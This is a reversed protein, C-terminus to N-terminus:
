DDEFVEEYGEGSQLGYFAKLQQLPGTGRGGEYSDATLGDGMVGFVGARKRLGQLRKRNAGFDNVSPEGIEHSKFTVVKDQANVLFELEDTVDLPGRNTTVKLYTPSVEEVLTLSPDSAVVGKIRAMAEEASVEFTWPPEYCDIQRVNATSVCNTPKGSAAVKCATISKPEEDQAYSPQTTTSMFLSFITTSIFNKRSVSTLENMNKHQTTQQFLIVPERTSKGVTAEHRRPAAPVMSFSEVLRTQLLIAVIIVVSVGHKMLFYMRLTLSTALTHLCGGIHPM